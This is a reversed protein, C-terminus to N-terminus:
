LFSLTDRCHSMPPVRSKHGNRSAQYHPGGTRLLDNACSKSLLTSCHRPFSRSRRQVEELNDQIMPSRGSMTLCIAQGAASIDGDQGQVGFPDIYTAAQALGEPLRQVHVKGGPILEHYPACNRLHGALGTLLLRLAAHLAARLAGSWAFGLFDSLM